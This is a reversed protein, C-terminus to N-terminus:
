RDGTELNRSGDSQLNFFVGLGIKSNDDEFGFGGIKGKGYKDKVKFYFYIDASKSGREFRNSEIILEKQYGTEPSEKMQRPMKKNPDPNYVIFGNEPEANGSSSMFLFLLGAILLYLIKKM